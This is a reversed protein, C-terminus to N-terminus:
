APRQLRFPGSFAITQRKNIKWAEYLAFGVILLGLFGTGETAQLVPMVLAGVISGVLIMREFGPWSKKEQCEQCTLIWFWSAHRLKRYVLGDAPEM